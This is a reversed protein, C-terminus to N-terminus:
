EKYKEEEMDTVAPGEIIFGDRTYRSGHCPCDFSEELENWTLTCGLHTCKLSMYKLNGNKDKYVGVKKGKVVAIGGEDNRLDDPNVHVEHKNKFASKITKLLAQPEAKIFKRQPSFFRNEETKGEILDSLYKGTWVSFGLGWKRFGTAVYVNRYDRKGSIVGIFPLYDPPCFDEASWIFQPEGVSFKNKGYEIIAKMKIDTKDDSGVPYTEGAVVLYNDNGNKYYRVSRVPDKATIYMSPDFDDTKWAACHSRMPYMRMFYNGNGDIAPFLTAIIIKRCKIKYKGNVTVEHVGEKIEIEEHAMSGEFVKLGKDKLYGAIAAGYAVPNTGLQNKLAIGRAGKQFPIEAKDWEIGLKDLAYEEDSIINGEDQTRAFMVANGEHYYDFVSLKESYDKFIEMAEMQSNYLALAADRGAMHFIDSYVAGHQATIKGTSFGSTKSLIRDKEILIFDMGREALEYACSLGTLGGGIILIDTELDETVVPFGPIEIGESWVSRFRSATLDGKTEPNKGLGLLINEGM